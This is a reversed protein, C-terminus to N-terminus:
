RLVLGKPRMIREWTIDLYWSYFPIFFMGILGNFFSQPAFIWLNMTIFHANKFILATLGAKTWLAIATATMSWFFRASPSNLYIASTAFRISFYAVTYVSTLIGFPASSVADSIMGIVMVPALGDRTEQTFAIAIVAMMVLDIRMFGLPFGNLLTSQLALWLLTWIITKLLKKM